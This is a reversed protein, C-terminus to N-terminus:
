HIISPEYKLSAFVQKANVHVITNNINYTIFLKSKIIKHLLIYNTIYITLHIM